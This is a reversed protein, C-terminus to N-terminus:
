YDDYLSWDMESPGLSAREPEVPIDENIGLQEEDDDEDEDGEDEEDGKKETDNNKVHKGLAAYAEVVDSPSKRTPTSSGKNSAVASQRLYMSGDAANKKPNIATGKKSKFKETQRRPRAVVAGSSLPSSRHPPRKDRLSPSPGLAPASSSSSPNFSPASSSPSPDLAPASSSSSANFSSASHSSHGALSSKKEERVRREADRAIDWVGSSLHWPADYDYGFGLITLARPCLCDAANLLVLIDSYLEGSAHNSPHLSAENFKWKKPNTLNFGHKIAEEVIVIITDDLDMKKFEEKTIDGMARIKEIRTAIDNRRSLVSSSKAISTPHPKTSSTPHPEATSARHSANSEHVHQKALSSPYSASPREIKAYRCYAALHDELGDFNTGAIDGPDSLLLKDM